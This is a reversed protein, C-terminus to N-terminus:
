TPTKQNWSTSSRNIIYVTLISIEYLLILPASVILCTFILPDPTIVAAFIIISLVAHKHYKTLVHYDILHLYSLVGLLVPLCFILGFTLLSCLIFSFYSDMTVTNAIEPMYFMNLYNFVSPIFVKLAFIFGMLIMVFLPVTSYLVIKNEKKYLAPSLFKYTEIYIVPVSLLIGVFLSLTFRVNLMEFPVTTILRYDTLSIFYRILHDSLYWGAMTFILVLVLIRITRSKLEKLYDSM